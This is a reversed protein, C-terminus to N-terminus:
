FFTSPLEISNGGDNRSVIQGEVAEKMMQEKGKTVGEDYGDTWEKAKLKAFELRDKQYQFDKSKHWFYRAAELIHPMVSSGRELSQNPYDFNYYQKCYSVLERELVEDKNTNNTISYTDESVISRSKYDQKSFLWDSTEYKEPVEVKPHTDLFEQVQEDTTPFDPYEEQLSDIRKLVWELTNICFTQRGGGLAAFNLEELRIQREIITRLRDADIYKM